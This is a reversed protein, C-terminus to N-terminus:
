QSAPWDWTRIPIAYSSLKLARDLDGTKDLGAPPWEECRMPDVLVVSTVEEPYLLAFRRMVLGGFSHGVLIYTAQDRSRHLLEHLEM